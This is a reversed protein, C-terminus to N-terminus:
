ARRRASPKDWRRRSVTLFTGSQAIVLDSSLCPDPEALSYTGAIAPSGKRDGGTGLVLVVTAIIIIAMCVYLAGVSRM